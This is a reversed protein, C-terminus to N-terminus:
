YKAHLPRETFTASSLAKPLQSDSIVFVANGSDDAAFPANLYVDEMGVLHTDRHHHRM